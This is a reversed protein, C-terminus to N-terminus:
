ASQLGIEEVLQAVCSAARSQWPPKSRFRQTDELFGRFSSIQRSLSPDPSRAVHREPPAHPDSFGFANELFTRRENTGRRVKKEAGATPNLDAMEVQGSRDGCYEHITLDSACLPLVGRHIANLPESVIIETYFVCINTGSTLTPYLDTVVLAGAFRSFVPRLHSRLVLQSREPTLCFRCTWSDAIAGDVM